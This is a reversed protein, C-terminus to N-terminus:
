RVLLEIQRAQINPPVASSRPCRLICINVSPHRISSYIDNWAAKNHISEWARKAAAIAADLTAVADSARSDLWFGLVTLIACLIKFVTLRM